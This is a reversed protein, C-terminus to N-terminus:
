GRGTGASSRILYGIMISELLKDEEVVIKGVNDKVCGAGVVDIHCLKNLCNKMNIHKQVLM